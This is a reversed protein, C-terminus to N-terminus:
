RQVYRLTSPTLTAVTCNGTASVRTLQLHVNQSFLDFDGSASDHKITYEYSFPVVITGTATNWAQVVVKPPPPSFATGTKQLELGCQVSDDSLEMTGTFRITALTPNSNGQAVLVAPDGFNVGAISVGGIPSGSHTVPATVNWTPLEVSPRVDSAVLIQTSAHPHKVVINTEFARSGDTYVTGQPFTMSLHHVGYPLGSSGNIGHCKLRFGAAATNTAFGSTDGNADVVECIGLCRADPAGSICSIRAASTASPLTLTVLSPVRAGGSVPALYDDPMPVVRREARALLLSIELEGTTPFWSTSSPLILDDGTGFKRDPGFSTIRWQSTNAPNFDYRYPSGWSDRVPDPMFSRLYPGNWGAPVGGVNLTAITSAPNEADSPQKYLAAVDITPVGDVTTAPPLAGMSSLYGFDGIEGRGYVADVIASMEKDTEVYADVTFPNALVPVLVTSIIAVITLVLVMELLTFGSPSFRVGSGAPNRRPLPTWM